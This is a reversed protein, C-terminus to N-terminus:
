VYTNIKKKLLGVLRKIEQSKGKNCVLLIDPTDVIIFDKLGIAAVLRKHEYSYVFTNHTDLGFWDCDSLVVNSKRDKPLIDSLSDWSGLDYWRFKGLLMVSNKSKELIGYDISIPKITDWIKTIDAKQRIKIIKHYINPLHTTLDNLLVEPKFCFIGSNWFVNKKDFIKRAENLKPKEKFCKVFFSDKNKRKAAIIYGFDSRPKNPKIGVLCLNGESSISLARLMAQKFKVSDKIYHDSPTALVNAQRDRQMIIKACLSIAPLTDKPNPELVINEEPINFNILQSKIEELYINNTIILINKDPIITRIRRITAEILSQKEIIKLFQKPSHRRSLPWFRTGSGGALVVAYNM